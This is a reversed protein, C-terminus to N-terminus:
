KELLIITNYRGEKNIEKDDKKLVVKLGEDDFTQKLSKWAFDQLHTDEWDPEDDARDYRNKNNLNNEAHDNYNLGRWLVILIYKRAVRKAEQISKVYDDVHDLAHMLLVCDWSNDEEKLDRMDQVEFDGDPFNHKCSEIMGESYDTGKYVFDWKQRTEVYGEKENPIDELTGTVLDYIPGTGCGVDLISKAGREKLLDLLFTRHSLAGMQYLSNGRVIYDWYTRFKKM